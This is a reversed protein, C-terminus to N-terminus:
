SRRLFAPLELGDDPQAMATAPTQSTDQDAESEHSASSSTMDIMSIKGDLADIMAAEESGAAAGFREKIIDPDSIAKGSLVAGPQTGTQSAEAYSPQDGSSTDSEAAGTESIIKGNQHIESSIEETQVTIQGDPGYAPTLRAKAVRFTPAEQDEPAALPQTDNGIGHDDDVANDTRCPELGAIQWGAVANARTASIQNSNGTCIDGLLRAMEGKSIGSHNKFWDDGIVPALMEAMAPKSVRKWFAEDPRWPRTWAIDLMAILAETSDTPDKQAPWASFSTIVAWSLWQDKENDDLARFARFREWDEDHDLWNRDLSTWFAEFKDAM